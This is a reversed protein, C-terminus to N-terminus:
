IALIMVTLDNKSVMKQKKWMRKVDAYL